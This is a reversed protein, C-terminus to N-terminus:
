KKGLGAAKHGLIKLLRSVTDLDDDSLDSFVDLLDSRRREFAEAILSSGKPSLKVSYRRRDKLDPVRSVLGKKELNDLVTTLNGPSTLVKKSIEVPCMDGKHYLTELVAFQSLTLSKDGQLSEDGASLAILAEEVSGYSRSLVIFARLVKDERLNRAGPRLNM